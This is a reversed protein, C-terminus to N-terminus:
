HNDLLGQGLPIAQKTLVSSCGKDISGFGQLRCLRVKHSNAVEIGQTIEGVDTIAEWLRRGRELGCGVHWFWNPLTPEWSFCM